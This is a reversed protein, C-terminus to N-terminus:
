LLDLQFIVVCIKSGHVLGRQVLIDMWCPDLTDLEFYRRLRVLVIGLRTLVDRRGFVHRGRLLLIRFIFVALLLLSYNYLTM